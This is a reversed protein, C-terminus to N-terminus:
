RPRHLSVEHLSRIGGDLIPRLAEAIAVSHVLQWPESLHDPSDFFAARPYRSRNALELFTAGNSAYLTRIAALTKDPMPADAFETPLGGIARVHHAAAWRLFAAILARGYGNAVESATARFPRAAALM